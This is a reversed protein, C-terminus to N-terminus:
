HLASVLLPDCKREFRQSCSFSVFKSTHVKFVCMLAHLPYEWPLSNFATHIRNKCGPEHCERVQFHQSNLCKALQKFLPLM